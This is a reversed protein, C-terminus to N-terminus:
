ADDACGAKKAQSTTAIGFFTPRSWRTGTIARAIASLSRYTERRYLFRGTSEAIVEHTQGQWERLLRTGPKISRRVPRPSPRRGSALSTDREHNGVEDPGISHKDARGATEVWPRSSGDSGAKRASPRRPTISAAAHNCSRRQKNGGAIWDEDPLGLAACQHDKLGGHRRAQVHYSLALVLLTTSIRKPPRSGFFELWQNQLDGRKAQAIAALRRQMKAPPLPAALSRGKDPRRLM